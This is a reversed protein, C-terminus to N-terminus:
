GIGIVDRGIVMSGILSSGQLMPQFYYDEFIMTESNRILNRSGVKMEEVKERVVSRISGIAVSLESYKDNINREVNGLKDVTLNYDRQNVKQSIENELMTIRSDTQLSSESYYNLTNSLGDVTSNIISMSSNVEDQYNSVLLDIRDKELNILADVQNITYHETQLKNSIIEVDGLLGLISGDEVPSWEYENNENKLFQYYVGADDGGYENVLYLDGIHADYDDWGDAPYNELTPTSQGTFVNRGLDVGQLLEEFYDDTIITRGVSERFIDPNDQLDSWTWEGGQIGSLARILANSQTTYNTLDVYNSAMYGKLELTQQRQADAIWGKISLETLGLEDLFEVLEASTIASSEIMEIIQEIQADTLELNMLSEGNIRFDKGDTTFVDVSGDADVVVRAGSSSYIMSSGNEIDPTNQQLVGILADSDERQGVLFYGTSKLPPSSLFGYPSAVKVNRKENSMDQLNVQKGGNGVSTIEATYVHATDTYGLSNQVIDSFRIM